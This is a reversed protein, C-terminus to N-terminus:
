GDRYRGRRRHSEAEEADALMRDIMRLVNMQAAEFGDLGEGGEGVFQMTEVCVRLNKLAGASAAKQIRVWVPNTAEAAKGLWKSALEGVEAADM